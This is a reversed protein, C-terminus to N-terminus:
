TGSCTLTSFLRCISASRLVYAGIFTLGLDVLGAVEDLVKDIQAECYLADPCQSMVGLTVPVRVDEKHTQSASVATSHETLTDFRLKPPPPATVTLRPAEKNQVLFPIQAALAGVALALVLAKSPMSPSLLALHTHAPHASHDVSLRAIVGKSRTQEEPLRGLQSKSAGLCNV